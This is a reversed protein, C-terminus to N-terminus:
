ISDSKERNCSACLLQLNEPESSGGLAVPIVHDFQLLEQSGCQQCRGGDRRFVFRRVEEPIPERRRGSPMGDVGTGAEAAMVDRAHQLTRNKDRERKVLLAKIDGADYNENDWYFRDQYWWFQREGSAAILVPSEAQENSLQDHDPISIKVPACGTGTFWYRQRKRGLFRWEDRWISANADRRLM